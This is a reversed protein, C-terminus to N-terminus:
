PAVWTNSWWLFLLISLFLFFTNLIKTEKTERLVNCDKCLLVLSSSRSACKRCISSQCIKCTATIYTNPHYFCEIPMKQLNTNPKQEEYSITKTKYPQNLIYNKSYNLEKTTQHQSINPKSSCRSCYNAIPDFCDNQHCIECWALYSEKKIKIKAM